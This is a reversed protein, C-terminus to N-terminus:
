NENTGGEALDRCMKVWESFKTKTDEDINSTHSEKRRCGDGWSCSGKLHYKICMPKGKFKPAKDMNENFYKLPEGQKIWTPDIPSTNKAPTNVDAQGKEKDARLLEEQKKRKNKDNLDDPTIRSRGKKTEQNPASKPAKASAVIQQVIVPLHTNLPQRVKFLIIEDKFDLIEYDVEAASTASACSEFFLQVKVDVAQMLSAVYEPNSTTMIDFARKHKNTGELLEAVKNYIYSTHGFVYDLTYLLNELMSCVGNGDNPVQVQSKTLSQIQAGSLNQSKIRLELEESGMAAKGGIIPAPV